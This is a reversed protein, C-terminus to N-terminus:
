PEVDGDKTGDTAARTDADASSVLDADLDPDIPENADPNLPDDADDILGANEGEGRPVIPPVPSSPSNTV